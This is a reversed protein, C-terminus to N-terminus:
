SRVSVNQPDTVEWTRGAKELTGFFELEKNAEHAQLATRYDNAALHLKVMAARGDLDTILRVTGEQDGPERDLSRVFGFVHRDPLPRISRLTDAVTGLADLEPREVKVTSVPEDSPVFLSWRVTVTVQAGFGSDFGSLHTLADCLNANLGREIDDDLADPGTLSALDRHAASKAAGVAELLRWLARRAFPVDNSPRDMERLLSTQRLADADIKSQIMLIVSGKEAPVLHAAEVFSNVISPLPGGQYYPRRQVESRGASTLAELAGRIMEPAAQLPINGETLEPAVLRFMLLDSDGYQLERVITNGPRLETEELVQLVTAFMLSRDHPELDSHPIAITRVRDDIQRQWKNGLEGEHHLSWGRSSLYAEAAEPSISELTDDLERM